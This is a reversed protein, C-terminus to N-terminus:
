VQILKKTISSFLCEYLQIDRLVRPLQLEYKNRAGSKAKAFHM